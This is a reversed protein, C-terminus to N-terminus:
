DEPTGAPERHTVTVPGAQAMEVARARATGASEDLQRRADNARAYGTMVEGTRPDLKPGADYGGEARGDGAADNDDLSPTYQAIEATTPAPRHTTAVGRAVLWADLGATDSYFSKFVCPERGEPEAVGTGRSAMPDASVNGPVKPVRGPDSLVLRRNNDTPKSGMLIKHHLNTRLAPDIGTAVSAVQSSLLLHVGVFRLEAAIRRIFKELIAKQLNIENAEIVLPHDKALKPVKEPYFLGTLEDVIVVIPRVDSDTPLDTWKIVHHRALVKARREGEEMVLALATVAAPLSDCGWGSDRCFQKCWLFDVSKSPLDVVVLEAGRSLCGAIFNNIVVSNHTPIFGDTLYLHEPHDVYLCRMREPDVVRIDTIYNWERTARTVVAVKAAKRPLRFVATDTTFNMRWRTGVVRQRKCGPRDPDPETLTAPSGLPTTVKIGLSRILELVGLALTHNCLDISASGNSSISGDTDMLGQLLALRQDYSARLYAAPIHKNKRLNLERLPGALGLVSIVDHPASRKPYATHGAATLQSILHAQDTLGFVDTCSAADGQTIEGSNSTGDGLWAGLVYPDVSLEAVAAQIPEALRVAYNTTVRMGHRCTVDNVMEATTKVTLLDEVVRGSDSCLAQQDLRQAVILLVEDVPYVTCATTTVDPRHAVKNRRMIKSLAATERRTAVRGLLDDALQKRTMWSLGTRAICELVKEGNLRQGFYLSPALELRTAADRLDFARTKKAMPAYGDVALNGLPLHMATLANPHFGALRSINLLSTGTGAPITAALTRLQAAHETRTAHHVGRRAIKQRTHAQRSIATSVQWLHDGNCRVTQGDTFTVKYVPASVEDSFGSVTAATGDAAYVSDGAALEGITAWGTPFRDSVPVPLRSTLPQAKGAGSTGGIQMHAGALLDISFVPGVEKGPEPLVHGLPIKAWDTSALSFEPIPTKVPYTFAAPFTPPTSPIISATLAAVDVDVYWGVRGVVSTAVEDLKVDHKSAVYGPPLELDFGGDSRPLVQVDWPKVGLAISVAGRCRATATDLKSLVAKGLFPEFRTMALGPYQDAMRIAVRDGDAPKTGRVLRVEFSDPKLATATVETVAAQRSAYAVNEAPDISDIQFGDGYHDAIKKALAKVHRGPDFGPPLTIKVRETTAMCSFM